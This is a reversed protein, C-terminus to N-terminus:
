LRFILVRPHTQSALSFFRVACNHIMGIGMRLELHISFDVSERKDIMIYKTSAQLLNLNMWSADNSRIIILLKFIRITM